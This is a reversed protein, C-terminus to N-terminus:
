SYNNIKCRLTSLNIFASYLKLEKYPFQRHKESCTLEVPVRQPYGYRWGLSSTTLLKKELNLISWIIGPLLGCLM